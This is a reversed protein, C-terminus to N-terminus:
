RPSLLYYLRPANDAAHSTSSTEAAEGPASPAPPISINVRDYQYEGHERLWDVIHQFGPRMDAASVLIYPLSPKGHLHHFARQLYRDNMTDSSFLESFVAYPKCDLMAILPLSVNTVLNSGKPIKPGFHRLLTNHVVANDWTTRIHVTKDNDIRYKCESIRGDEMQPRWFNTALLYLCCVLYIKVTGRVYDFRRQGPKFTRQWENLMTTAIPLSLVCMVPGLFSMGANSGLPLVFMSCLSLGYLVHLASRERWMRRGGVILPLLSMGAGVLGTEKAVGAVSLLLCVFVWFAVNWILREITWITNNDLFGRLRAYQQKTLPIALGMLMACGLGSSAIYAVLYAYKRLIVKFGHSEAGDGGITLVDHWTLWLVSVSGTLWSLLVVFAFGVVVGALFGGMQKGWTLVEPRRWTLLGAAFPLVLFSLNVVRFMVAWGVVAGALAIWLVNRGRSYLGKHYLLVAMALWLASWDNYNLESYAGCQSLTLLLLGMLLALPSVKRRLYFWVMVQLGLVLVIRLLRLGFFTDIGLLRCLWGTLQYTLQWQGLYPLAEPDANFCEYGSMYMGIDLPSFGYRAKMVLFFAAGLLYLVFWSDSGGFRTLPTFIASRSM